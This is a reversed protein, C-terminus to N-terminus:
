LQTIWDFGLQCLKKSLGQCHQVHIKKWIAVYMYLSLSTVKYLKIKYLKILSFHYMSVCTFWLIRGLTWMFLYYIFLSKSTSCGCLPEEDVQNRTSHSNPFLPTKPSPFGSYGSFFRESCLLSGVVFEVWMHRWRWSKFRPWMPPFCASEGSHWGKSEWFLVERAGCM